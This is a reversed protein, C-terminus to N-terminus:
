RRTNFLLLKAIKESAFKSPEISKTFDEKKNLFLSIKIIPIKENNNDLLLNWKKLFNEYSKFYSDVPYYIDLIFIYCKNMKELLVTLLNQYKQFLLLIFIDNNKNENKLILSLIDNGGISLFITTETSNLYEPIKELQQYVSFLNAGDEAYNFIKLTSQKELLDQVTEGPLVYSQNNLISDGLFILNKSSNMTQFNEYYFFFPIILLILIVFFIIIFAILLYFLLNKKKFLIKM